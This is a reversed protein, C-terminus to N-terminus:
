PRTLPHRATNRITGRPQPHSALWARAEAVTATGGPMPFGRAKMAQVYSRSRKLAFALEKTTLLENM